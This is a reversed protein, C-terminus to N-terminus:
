PAGLVELAQAAGPHLPVPGTDRAHQLTIGEAARNAAVLDATREFPTTLVCATAADLGEPVVLLNPVM